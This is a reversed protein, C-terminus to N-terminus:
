LQVRRVPLEFTRRYWLRNKENVRKMVGSLASEIPFPVLIQETFEKPEPQEKGTVALEWLGNLNLWGQRVMQPRPYEPHANDPSVDKTWRTALPGRAPKWQTDAKGSVVMNLVLFVLLVTNVTRRM